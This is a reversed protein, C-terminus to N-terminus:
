WFAVSRCVGVLPHPSRWLGRGVAYDKKEANGFANPNESRCFVEHFVWRGNGAEEDERIRAIFWLCGCRTGGARECPM